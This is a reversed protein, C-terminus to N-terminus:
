EHDDNENDLLKHVAHNLDLLKHVAHNLLAIIHSIAKDHHDECEEPQSFRTM